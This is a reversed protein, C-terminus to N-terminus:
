VGGALATSLVASQFASVLSGQTVLNTELDKIKAELEDLEAVIRKQEDLPPLPIEISQIQGKNISDFVAGESGAFLSRQSRLYYFLFERDIDGKTRIAALGRGICCEEVAFNVPGVPARVSMLIDGPLAIKTSVSTWVSPPELFVPGFDKKGQYFPTGLGNKNYFEGKPSQGAIVDALDGLSVLPWESVALELAACTDRRKRGLLREVAALGFLSKLAELQEDLSNELREVESSVQDLKAVLRKQEDLPPLPVVIRKIKTKNIIAVTTGSSEAWLKEQVGPSALLWSVFQADAVEPNVELGNIQQNAAVSRPSWNVKGITGICCLLVSPASFLVSSSVGTKSITRAVSGLEGGSGLDGPTVFEVGEGWNAPEATRPTKGTRWRGLDGLTTLRWESM